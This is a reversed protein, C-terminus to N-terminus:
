ERLHSQHGAPSAIPDFHPTDMSAQLTQSVALQYNEAFLLNDECPRRGLVLELDTHLRSNISGGEASQEAVDTFRACAKPCM